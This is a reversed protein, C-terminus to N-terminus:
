MAFELNTALLECGTINKLWQLKLSSKKGTPTRKLNNRWFNKNEYIGLKM